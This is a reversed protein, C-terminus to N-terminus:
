PILAPNQHFILSRPMHYSLFFDSFFDFSFVLFFNLPFISLLHSFFLLHSTNTRLNLKKMQQLVFDFGLNQSKQISNEQHSGLPSTSLLLTNTRNNKSFSALLTRKFFLNHRHVPLSPGQGDKTHIVMPSNRNQLRTSIM